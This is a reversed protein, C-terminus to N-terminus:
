YINVCKVTFIRKSGLWVIENFWHVETLNITYCNSM